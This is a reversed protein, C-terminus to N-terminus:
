RFTLWLEATLLQPLPFTVFVVYTCIEIGLPRSAMELIESLLDLHPRTKSWPEGSVSPVLCLTLELPSTVRRRSTHSIPAPRDAPAAVPSIPPALPCPGLSPRGMIWAAPDQLDFWAICRAAGVAQLMQSVGSPRDIAEMYQVPLSSIHCGSQQVSLYLVTVPPDHDRVLYLIM